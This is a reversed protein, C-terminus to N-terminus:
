LKLVSKNEPPTPLLKKNELVIYILLFPLSINFYSIDFYSDFITKSIGNKMMSLIFAISIPLLLFFTSSKILSTLDKIRFSYLIPFLITLFSVLVPLQRNQLEFPNHQKFHEFNNVNYFCLFLFLIATLFSTIAFTMKERFSYKFLKSFLLLSIPIIAILRTLVLSTAIFSLIFINLESKKLIKNQIIVLFLLIFIFNSMLDSKVYIEWLYAPSLVLLLLCFLRDKYSDFTVYLIYIFLVFTFSQLFGINGMVYFPVGIFILSPLNSTRGGLHDIASYPYEGNLLAKVAVEMASWRDINLTNGDITINLFITFAFFISVVIIFISKYYSKYDVKLYLFTFLSIIFAYLLILIYENFQHLRSTYKVVFLCNIFLYVLYPIVLTPKM